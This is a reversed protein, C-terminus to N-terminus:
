TELIIHYNTKFFTWGIRAHKIDMNFRMKPAAIEPGFDAAFLANV